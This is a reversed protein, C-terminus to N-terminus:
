LIICVASCKDSRIRKAATRQSSSPQKRKLYIKGRPVTPNVQATRFSTAIATAIASGPITNYEKEEITTKLTPDTEDDSSSTDDPLCPASQESMHSNDIPISYFADRLDITPWVTASQTTLDPYLRQPKPEM